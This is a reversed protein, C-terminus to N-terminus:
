LNSDNAMREQMWERQTSMWQRRSVDNDDPESIVSKHSTGTHLLRGM